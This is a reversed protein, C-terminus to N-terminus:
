WSLIFLSLLARQPFIIRIWDLSVCNHTSVMSATNTWYWCVLTNLSSNKSINASTSSKLFDHGREREWVHTHSVCKCMKLITRGYFFNIEVSRTMIQITRYTFAPIWSTTGYDLVIRVTKVCEATSISRENEARLSATRVPHSFWNPAFWQGPLQVSPCDRTSICLATQARFILGPQTKLKPNKHEVHSKTLVFPSAASTIIPNWQTNQRYHEVTQWYYWLLVAYVSICKGMKPILTLKSDLM